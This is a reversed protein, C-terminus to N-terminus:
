ASWIDSSVPANGAWYPRCVAPMTSMVKFDPVVLGPASAEM